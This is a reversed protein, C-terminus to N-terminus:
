VECGPSKSQGSLDRKSAVPRFRTSIDIQGIKSWMKLGPSRVLQRQSTQYKPLNMRNQTFIHPDLYKQYPVKRNVTTLIPKAFTKM